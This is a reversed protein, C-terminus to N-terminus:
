IYVVSMIKVRGGLIKDPKPRPPPQQSSFGEPPKVDIRWSVGPGKERSLSVFSPGCGSVKRLVSGQGLSKLVSLRFLGKTDSRVFKRSRDDCM